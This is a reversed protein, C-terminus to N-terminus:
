IGNYLLNGLLPKLLGKLYIPIISNLYNSVYQHNLRTSTSDIEKEIEACTSWIEIAQKTVEPDEAGNVGKEIVNKSIQFISVTSIFTIFALAILFVIQTLSFTKLKGIINFKTKKTLKKKLQYIKM